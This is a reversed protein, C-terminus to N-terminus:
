CPALFGKAAERVGEAASRAPMWGLLRRAKGADVQLSDCLSEAIRGRGTAWAALRLAQPPCRLLHPPRGLGAAICRVMEPTSLDQSDAALFLENTAAPHDLCLSILDLLNDIGVLSRANHIGALPLWWGRAVAGVLRAFNGPAGPGYILPPRIITLSTASAGLVEAVAQEARLKSRAYPEVPGPADAETFPRQERTRNGNVGISSILVLRGVGADRAARAVASAGRVSSEFAQDGGGRHARAALHVVAQMGAFARALLAADEYGPVTLARVGGPWGAAARSLAVVDGADRALRALLARGVFGSAGTVAVRLAKDAAM